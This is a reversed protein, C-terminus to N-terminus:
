IVLYNELIMTLNLLLLDTTFKGRYLKDLYLIYQISEARGASPIAAEGSSEQYRVKNDERIKNELERYSKKTVKYM